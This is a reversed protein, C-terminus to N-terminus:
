HSNATRTLKIKTGRRQVRIIIFCFKMSLVFQSRRGRNYIFFFYRVKNLEQSLRVAMEEDRSTDPVALESVAVNSAASENSDRRAIVSIDWEM